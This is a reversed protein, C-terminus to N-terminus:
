AEVFTACAADQDSSSSEGDIITIGNAICKEDRNYLCKRAACELPVNNTNKAAMDKSVEFINGNEIIINERELDKNYTECAATGREIHVSKAKCSCGTNYECDGKKCRIEM